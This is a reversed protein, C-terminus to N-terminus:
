PNVVAVTFRIPVGVQGLARTITPSLQFECTGGGSDDSDVAVFIDMYAEQVGAISSILPAKDGIKTTVEEILVSLDSSESRASLSWVGIKAKYERNTSTVRKEGKYQSESPELGLIKSVYNPELADGKLYIAVIYKYNKIIM